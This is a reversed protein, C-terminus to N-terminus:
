SADGYVAWAHLSRKWGLRRLARSYAAAAEQSSSAWEITVTDGLLTAFGRERPSSPAPWTDPDSARLVFGLEGNAGDHAELMEARADHQPLLRDIWFIQCEPLQELANM